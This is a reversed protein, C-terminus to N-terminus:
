FIPTLRLTFMGPRGELGRSGLDGESGLYALM